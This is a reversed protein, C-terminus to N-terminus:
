PKDYAAYELEQLERWLIKGSGSKPLNKVFEVIRPVKYASMHERAWSRFEQENTETADSCLVIKAKVIEGREPDKSAIVCIEEVAPNKYFITEVEAPWVKFGSANIMRKIRDIIFIYGEDNMRGLDGTRFFRKGAIEVFSEANAEDNNWYALLVQPGSIIIEGIKGTALQEITGPEVILIDTNFVAIGGCQAIPNQPPNATAPAMTETLGYGELFTVGCLAQLKEAVAKPMSIGGGYMVRISSIDYDKLNPSALLDIAMTPVAPWTTIKYSEIMAAVADRDWRPVIVMTCGLQISVNMGAQMGVVHFMPAVAMVVDDEIIGFWDYISRTAHLTTANTHMCGKGRGTSGSTYPLIALDDPKRNYPAPVCEVKLMDNWNIARSHSIGEHKQVLFEPIAIETDARLYDSYQVIIARRLSTGEMATFLHDALDQACFAAVAGSDELISSVEEALNMPNVAVVVAGARLIGYYALVYQPCNQSYIAVRDGPEVGCEHQLYGAILNATKDIEEFTIKTDYFIIGPKDPLRAATNRLNGYLTETTKEIEFPLGEPWVAHQPRRISVEDNNAM